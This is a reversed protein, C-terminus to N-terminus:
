DLILDVIKRVSAIARNQRNSSATSRSTAQLQGPDKIHRSALDDAPSAADVHNCTSLDVYDAPIAICL